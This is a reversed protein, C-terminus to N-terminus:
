SPSMTSRSPAEKGGFLSRIEELRETVARICNQSASWFCKDYVDRLMGGEDLAHRETLLDRLAYGLAGAMLVNSVSLEDDKMSIESATAHHSDLRRLVAELGARIERHEDPLPITAKVSIVSPLVYEDTMGIVEKFVMFCGYLLGALAALEPHEEVHEFEKALAEMVSHKLSQGADSIVKFVIESLNKGNLSLAGDRVDAEIQLLVAFVRTSMFAVHGPMHTALTEVDSEVRKFDPKHSSFAARVAAEKFVEDFEVVELTKEAFNRPIMSRDNIFVLVPVHKSSAFADLARLLSRVVVSEDGAGATTVFIVIPKKASKGFKSSLKEQILVELRSEDPGVAEKRRSGGVGVSLGSPTGVNLGVSTQSNFFVQILDAHFTVEASRVVKVFDGLDHTHALSALFRLDPNYILQPPTPNLGASTLMVARRGLEVHFDYSEVWRMNIEDSLLEKLYALADRFIDFTGPQMYFIHLGPKDALIAFLNANLKV